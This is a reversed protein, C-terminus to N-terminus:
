GPKKRRSKSTRISLCFGLVITDRSDTALDVSADGECTAAADANDGEDATDTDAKGDGAEEVKDDASPRSREPM